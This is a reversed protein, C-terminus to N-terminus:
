DKRTLRESLDTSIRWESDRYGCEIEIPHPSWAAPVDKKGDIMKMFVVRRKLKVVGVLPSILSDSKKVDISYDDSIEFRAVAKGFGMREKIGLEALADDYKVEWEFDKVVIQASSVVSKAFTRFQEVPDNGPASTAVNSTQPQHTTPPTYGRDVPSPTPSSRLSSDPPNGSNGSCGIAMTLALLFIQGSCRGLTNM